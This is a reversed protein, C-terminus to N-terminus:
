SLAGQAVDQAWAEGTGRLVARDEATLKHTYCGHAAALEFAMELNPATMPDGSGTCGYVWYEAGFEEQSVWIDCGNTNLLFKM